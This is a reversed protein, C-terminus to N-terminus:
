RFLPSIKSRWLREDEECFFTTLDDFASRYCHIIFFIRLSTRCNPKLCVCGTFPALELLHATSELSLLCITMVHCYRRTSYCKRTCACIINLTLPVSNLADATIIVAIHRACLAQAGQRMYLQTTAATPLKFIFRKNESYPTNALDSINYSMCVRMNMLRALIPEICEGLIDCVCLVISQLSTCCM